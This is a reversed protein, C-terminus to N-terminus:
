HVAKEDETKKSEFECEDVWTPDFDFPWTAWGNKVGHPNLKVAPGNKGQVTAGGFAIAAELAAAKADEMGLEKATDRIVTCCSHASGPVMTRFRCTYCNPKKM